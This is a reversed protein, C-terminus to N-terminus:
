TGWDRPYRWDLNVTRNALKAFLAPRRKYQTHRIMREARDLLEAPFGLRLLEARSYRRDVMRHLLADAVAYTMGLEGEDTQGPWLDASPPVDLVPEPVGYHRALLYVQTKYLDGIPSMAYAMDGFLTAYGFLAETKNSTGIVLARFEASVDYLVIMRCRAMVNGRRTRVAPDDLDDLGGAAAFFADAMPTVDVIELPVGAHEATLRALETSEASSTRHPMHIARVNEAGLGRVAIELTLASDIGGSVGVVGREIGFRNCEQRVFEPLVRGALEVDLGPPPPLTVAPDSM